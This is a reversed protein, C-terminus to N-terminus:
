PSRLAGRSARPVREAHARRPRSLGRDPAGSRLLRCRARDRGLGEIAGVRPDRAAIPRRARVGQPRHRRERRVGPASAARHRRAADAVVQVRTETAEFMRAARRALRASAPNSRPARRSRAHCADLMAPVSRAAVLSPRSTVVRPGWLDDLTVLQDTLANAPVGFLSPSWGPKFQIVTARVFGTARKFKARTRPGIVYADGRGEEAVRVVLSTRGNPLWDIAFPEDRRALGDSRRRRLARDFVGTGDLCHGACDGGRGPSTEGGRFTRNRWATRHGDEIRARRLGSVSRAHLDEDRSCCSFDSRAEGFTEGRAAVLYAGEHAIPARSASARRDCRARRPRGARALKASRQRSRRRRRPGSRRRRGRRSRRVLARRSRDRCAAGRM